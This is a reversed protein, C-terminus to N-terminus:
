CASVGKGGELSLRGLDDCSLRGNGGAGRGAVRGGGLRKGQRIKGGKAKGAGGRRQKPQARRGGQTSAPGGGGGRSGSGSGSMALTQGTHTNETYMSLSTMLSNVDTMADIDPEAGGGDGEETAVFPFLLHSFPTLFTHSLFPPDRIDHYAHLTISAPKGAGGDGEGTIALPVNIPSPRHSLPLFPHSLGGRLSWSPFTFPLPLLVFIAGM